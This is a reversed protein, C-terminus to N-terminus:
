LTTIDSGFWKTSIEAITGDHKMEYLMEQVRDRLSIDGKLFGVAITEKEEKLTGPIIYCNLDNSRIIYYVSVSDIFGIEPSGEAVHKILDVNNDFYELRIDDINDYDKLIDCVSSGSQVGVTVDKIDGIAKIKSDSPTVFVLDNNLYPESLCMAEERETTVSMGNLICDISGANLENIKEDWDIGKCVLEINLRRCVERALDIDFGVIEGNEDTFGIPPFCIDLGLVLKGSNLVKNLSDDTVAPTKDVASSCGSILVAALAVAIAKINIRM